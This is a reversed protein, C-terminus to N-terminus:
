HFRTPAYPSPDIQPKRGLLLDAVLLGTAASMSMGLMGHGTALMLNAIGPATGIIPLDDYTMPRWGYWEEVTATGFPEVDVYEAAGRLLADLRTRDLRTDYGSFEMTSGVRYSQQWPTIAVSRERCVIPVGPAHRPRPGTISYGKGPQVPLRLGLQRALLPTWAGLALIVQDGAYEGSATTVSVIRGNECRIGQVGSEPRISVGMEDVRHALGSVYADPKFEADLPTDFGGIVEARLCPERARLAAGDLDVVQMGVSRLARPWWDFAALAAPDRFVTLHGREQFECEIGEGRILEALLRRSQLLLRAKGALAQEFDAWNCRRAFQWLWRWLVPDFRPRIYFPADSQVMWTLAQRVMGPKALPPAHSPTITGCNGWSAGSGIYAQDLITVDRGAKALFYACSLGIVGAGLILVESRQTM